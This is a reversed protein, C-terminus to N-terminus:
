IQERLLLSKLFRGEDKLAAKRDQPDRWDDHDESELVKVYKILLKVLKQNVDHPEDFTLFSAHLCVIRSSVSEEPLLPPPTLQDLPSLPKPSDNALNAAAGTISSLRDAFTGTMKGGWVHKCTLLFVGVWVSEENIHEKVYKYLANFITRSGDFEIPDLVKFFQGFADHASDNDDDYYGWAGM